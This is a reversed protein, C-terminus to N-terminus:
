GCFHCLVLISTLNIENWVWHSFRSDIRVWQWPEGHNRLGFAQSKRSTATGRILFKQGLVWPCMRRWFFIGSYVPHADFYLKNGQVAFVLPGSAEFLIGVRELTFIKDKRIQLSSLVRHLLYFRGVLFLPFQATASSCTCVLETIRGISNMIIIKIHSEYDLVKTRLVKMQLFLFM